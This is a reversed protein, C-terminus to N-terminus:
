RCAEEVTEHLAFVRDLSTIQFVKLIHPSTCVLRIQGGHARLRKHAAVLAGLATSDLFDTATLDVVVVPRGDAMADNLRARLEPATTLDVQGQVTVICCGSHEAMDVSFTVSTV